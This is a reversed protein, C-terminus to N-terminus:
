GNTRWILLVLLLLVSGIVLWKILKMFGHWTQVHAKMDDFSDRGVGLETYDAM